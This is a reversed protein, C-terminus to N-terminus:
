SRKLVWILAIPLGELAKRMTSPEMNFAKQLVSVHEWSLKPEICHQIELSNKKFAEIYESHWHTHNEVFGRQGDKKFFDAHGGMAVIMPHIDSLILTGDKKVVRAFEAIPNDVTEFHSLALACVLADYSHSNLNTTSIDSQLYPINRNKSKAVILMSASQDVGIVDHGLENLLSTYRGTGCAMDVVTGKPLDRLLQETIPQEADLLLNPMQDYYDAWIEYGEQVSFEPVQSEQNNLDSNYEDIVSQADSILKNSVENEGKLWNRLLALGILGLKYYTTHSAPM